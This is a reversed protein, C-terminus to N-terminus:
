ANINIIIGTSHIAGAEKGAIQTLPAKRAGRDTTSQQAIPLSYVYYGIDTINRYFAELVGFTDSGTWAGPALFGNYVAQAMVKRYANKLGDMGQETQPIKSNTQALYNFGAVQIALKLWLANYIRDAFTNTGSTFVKPVGGLSVYVDAGAAIAETMTTQTIGTDVNIGALTKLNM